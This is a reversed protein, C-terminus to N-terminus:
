LFDTNYAKATAPKTNKAVVVHAHTTVDSKQDPKSPSLVHVNDKHCEQQKANRQKELFTKKKQLAITLTTQQVNQCLRACKHSAHNNMKPLANNFM